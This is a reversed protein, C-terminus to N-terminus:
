RCQLVSESSAVARTDWTKVVGDRGSSVLVDKGLFTSLYGPNKISSISDTHASNIQLTKRLQSSELIAISNSPSSYAVAYISKEAINALHLAYDKTSSIAFLGNSRVVQLTPSGVLSIRSPQDFSSVDM